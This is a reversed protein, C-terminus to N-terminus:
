TKDALSGGSLVHHALSEAEELSTRVTAPIGFAQEIGPLMAELSARKQADPETSIFALCQRSLEQRHAKLWIGRKKRDEQAEEHPMPPYVLVFPEGYLILADM